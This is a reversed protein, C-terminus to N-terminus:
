SQNQASTLSWGLSHQQHECFRAFAGGRDLLEAVTGDERVKGDDLFIVRDANQITSLRHAIVIRFRHPRDKAGGDNSNLAAVIATENETDLASTAEDILLVPAPKLLARAISVRQREGGSLASGAEGVASEAGTPLRAVLEGVQARELARHVAEESAEPYGARVNDLITGEFLYPHQFVVSVGARRDEESQQWIDTNGVMVRGTGPEYLGALIGLLTSKGSGSPGVIATTGPSFVLNLGELVPAQNPDYGFGVDELRIEQASAPTPNAGEPTAPSHEPARLVASIHGILIAVNEIAPTLDGLVVFPELYRGVIVLLAVAEVTTLDGRLTLVVATAAMAILAIQTAIGFLVQGPIQLTLLRLMTGHQATLAAGAHSRAPQVRRAARLAQQTRAFELIRESLVANAQEMERDARRSFRSSLWMTLLLLPACLCAIVGLPWAIPLLALGLAIPMLTAQAIPTILYAFLSVLDPGTAAIARRAISANEPVFWELTIKTLRDALEYQAHDLMSFGLEYGVKNCWWDVAWGATITATLAGFWVWAGAPSPSFLAVLLPIVVVTSAARLLVSAVMLIAYGRLSRRASRPLLRTISRIM